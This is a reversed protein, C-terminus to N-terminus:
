LKIIANCNYYWNKRNLSPIIRIYDKYLLIIDSM